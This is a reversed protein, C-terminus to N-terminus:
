PSAAAIRERLAPDAEQLRGLLVATVYPFWVDPQRAFPPAFTLDLDPPDGKHLWRLAYLLRSPDIKLRKGLGMHQAELGFYVNISRPAADDHPMDILALDSIRAMRWNRLQNNEDVCPSDEGLKQSAAFTLAALLRSRDKDLTLAGATTKSCEPLSM